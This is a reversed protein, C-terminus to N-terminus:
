HISSQLEPVAVGTFHVAGVDALHPLSAVVSNCNASVDKRLTEVIANVDFM